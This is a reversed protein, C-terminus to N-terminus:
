FWRNRRVKSNRLLGRRNIIKQPSGEVRNDILAVTKVEMEQLKTNANTLGQTDGLAELCRAAVRQALVPQLDSPCQPIMCEGAFAINDGIETEGDIDTTLFTITKNVTNMASPTIDWKRIKHGPKAQLLDLTSTVTMGTPIANVTYTTTGADSDEAIDTIIAVRSEEVLDSPRMYFSFVLSGLSQLGNNPTLIVNNGEVYYFRYQSGYNSQQYIYKDDPSIRAMEYLNGNTDKYFLDRLKGGVARYPITYSYKSSELEVEQPYVYYEEHVSLVSPVIGIKLETNIFALFDSTSFTSQSEPIMARRKIDTILSNSTFYGVAM